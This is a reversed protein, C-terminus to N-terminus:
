GAPRQRAQIWADAAFDKGPIEIHIREFPHSDGDHHMHPALDHYLSDSWAIVLDGEKNARLAERLPESDLVRFLDVVANGLFGSYGERILGQHLCARMRTREAGAPRDAEGNVAHLALTLGHLMRVVTAPEDVGPPLVLLYGDGSYQRGCERWDLGAYACAARVARWLDRQVRVMQPDDRRSYREIDVAFMLRRQWPLAALREDEAEDGDPGPPAPQGAPYPLEPGTAPWADAVAVRFGIEDRVSATRGVRRGLLTRSMTVDLDMLGTVETSGAPLRVLVQGWHGDPRLGAGPRAFVWRPRNGGLGYVSAETGDPQVTGAAPVLALARAEGDDFRIDLCASTYSRDGALPALDFPFCLLLDVPRQGGGARRLALPRTFTVTSERDAVVATGPDLMISEALVDAVALVDDPLSIEEPLPEATM